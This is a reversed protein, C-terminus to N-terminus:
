WMLIHIEAKKEYVSFVSCVDRSHQRTLLVEMLIWGLMCSSASKSSIYPGPLVDTIQIWVRDPLWSSALSGSLRQPFFDCPSPAEYTSAQLFTVAPPPVPSLVLEEERILRPACLPGHKFLVLRISSREWWLGKVVVFLSCVLFCRHRLRSHAPNIIPFSLPLARIQWQAGSTDSQVLIWLLM